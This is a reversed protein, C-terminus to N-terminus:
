RLFRRIDGPEKLPTISLRYFPGPFRQNLLRFDDAITEEVDAPEGEERFVLMEDGDPTEEYDKLSRVKVIRSRLKFGKPV